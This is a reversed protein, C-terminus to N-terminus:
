GHQLQSAAVRTFILCINKCLPMILATSLPTIFETSTLSSYIGGSDAAAKAVAM